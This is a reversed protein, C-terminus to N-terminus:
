YKSQLYVLLLLLLWIGDERLVVNEECVRACHRRIELANM